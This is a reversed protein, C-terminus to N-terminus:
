DRVLVTSGEFDFGFPVGNARSQWRREYSPMDVRTFSSSGGAGAGVLKGGIAGNALAFDYYRDILPNSMSTSREKKRMWHRNMIEGFGDVDGSELAVKVENGLEKMAHLNEIM